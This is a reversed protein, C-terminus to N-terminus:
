PCLNNRCYMHLPLVAQRDAHCCMHPCIRLSCAPRVPPAASRPLEQAASSGVWRSTHARM